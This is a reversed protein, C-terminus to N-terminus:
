SEPGGQHEPGPRDSRDPLVSKDEEAEAEELLRRITEAHAKWDDSETL